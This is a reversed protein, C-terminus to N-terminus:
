AALNLEVDPQDESQHYVMAVSLVGDAQGIVEYIETTARDDDAELTAVIKGEPSVAQVEVGALARLAAVVRDVADPHPIVVVSSINM